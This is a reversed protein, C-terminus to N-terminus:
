INERRQGKIIVGVIKTGANLAIIAGAKYLHEPPYGLKKTLDEALQKGYEEIEGYVVCYPTQPIIRKATTNVIAPIVSKDGRVKETINVDGNVFSIIPRLGILEGVFAAAVSVRGSKKVFELSYPAFYIESCSFWDNLYALVEDVKAGRKIKKAAEIVPFGYGMTYTLSDVIHVRFKDNAEPNEEFFMDKAMLAASYGNSGKSNITVIIVDEFGEKYAAKIYDCYQIVTIHATVPLRTCDSLIKYFEETTFDVRELYSKDDIAIPIPIIQIDLETELTKPIDCPSDTIIKIKSM